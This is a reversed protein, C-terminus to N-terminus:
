RALSTVYRVEPVSVGGSPTWQHETGDHHWGQSEYFGRAAHNGSLVWLSADAFGADALLRTAAEILRRGASRGQYGPDVYIAYVEGDAAVDVEAGAAGDRSPGGSVFGQVQGDAEFVLTFVGEPPAALRGRWREAWEGVDLGALFDAPLLGAYANQWTAVHVMAIPHADDPRAARVLGPAFEALVADTDRGHAPVPGLVPAFGGHRVPPPLVDVTGEGATVPTWRSALQPHDV